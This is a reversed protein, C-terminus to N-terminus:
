GGGGVVELGSLDDQLLEGLEALSSAAKTLDQGGAAM